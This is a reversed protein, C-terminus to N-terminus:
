RNIIYAEGKPGDSLVVLAGNISSKISRIRGKIEDFIIEEELANNDLSIKRIEGPVLSSIILSNNFEPFMEGDYFIMDSPAISPVWYTLPQEMGIKETFPSIISGNYDIGYTIAPWGYNKGATILNLEDGGRPGHENSYLIDNKSDYAIGQQNRHGYSFIEPLANQTNIYPNDKPISGDANIRIIKGFHNDLNQADERYNFGDGSTIILSNDNLFVLRAGYHNSSKRYPKAEFIIKKNILENRILEASIVKLTNKNKEGYSFSIFVISNKEFEPHLIIDSLGGQGRFLANPIGNIDIVERTKIDIRKIKGILETVLIDGNPLTASSWPHNFNHEVKEVNYELNAAILPRALVIAALSILVLIRYKYNLKNEIRM